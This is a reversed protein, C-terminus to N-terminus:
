RLYVVLVDAEAVKGHHNWNTYGQLKSYLIVDQRPDFRKEWECHHATIGMWGADNPCGGYNRNIFFNRNDSSMSFVNKPQSKMDKWSSDILRPAAFWNLKDSGTANFKVEKVINGGTYLVVRAESAHFDAWNLVIRNKYHDKHNNTVDLAAMVKESSTHPSNYTPYAKKNIGSVAKFVMTWGGADMDCYVPFSDKSDTLTIWYIGNTAGKLHAKIDKCSFRPDRRSGLPAEYQLARWESGDCVYVIGEKFTMQGARLPECECDYQGIRFVYQHTEFTGCSSQPCGIAFCTM